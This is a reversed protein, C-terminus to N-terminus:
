AWRGDNRAPKAADHLHALRYRLVRAQRLSLVLRAAIDGETSTLIVMPRAAPHLAQALAVDVIFAEPRNTDM